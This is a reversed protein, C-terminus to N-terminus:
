QGSTKEAYQWWIMEKSSKQRKTEWRRGLTDQPNRAKALDEPYQEGTMDGHDLQSM